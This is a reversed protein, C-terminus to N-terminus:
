KEEFRKSKLNSEHRRSCVIVALLALITFLPLIATSPFEPITPNDWLNTDTVIMSVSENTVYRGCKTIGYFRQTFELPVGTARDFYIQKSVNYSIYQPDKTDTYNV